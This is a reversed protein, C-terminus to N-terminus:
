KRRVYRELARRLVDSLSEGREAAKEAAADWLADSVRITRRPTGPTNPVGRLSGPTMVRATQRNSKRLAQWFKEYFEGVPAAPCSVAHGEPNEAWVSHTRSCTCEPKTV